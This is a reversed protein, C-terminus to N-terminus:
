KQVQYWTSPGLIYGAFNDNIDEKNRYPPYVTGVDGENIKGYYFGNIRRTAHATAEDVGKIFGDSFM